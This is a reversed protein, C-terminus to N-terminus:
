LERGKISPLVPARNSECRYYKGDLKPIYEKVVVEMCGGRGFVKDFTYPYVEDDEIWVGNVYLGSVIFFIMKYDSM